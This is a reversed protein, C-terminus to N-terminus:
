SWLSQKRKKGPKWRGALAGSRFFSFHVSYSRSYPSVKAGLGEVIGRIEELSGPITEARGCIEEYVAEIIKTDDIATSDGEKEASSDARNDELTIGSDIRGSLNDRCGTILFVMSGLLFPMCIKRRDAIRGGRGTRSRDAKKKWASM